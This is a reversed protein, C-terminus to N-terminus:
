QFFDKKFACQVFANRNEEKNKIQVLMNKQPIIYNLSKPTLNLKSETGKWFTEDIGMIMKTAVSTMFDESFHTPSQSSAILGLGFKRAEKAIVNIINEPEDSFYMHAEDIVVLEVLEDKLGIELRREFIQELLMNVFMKKEELRLAKIQYRWVSCNEDFPPLLDKFIGANNLNELREVVSKLTDKSDYKILSSLENGTQINNIYNSYEEICQEKLQKLEEELKQIEARDHEKNMKKIKAYMRNASRNLKELLSMAKNNTGLMLSQLKFNSFNVADQLTPYKKPFRRKIGDDLVWSKPDNSYFGNAQYLDLLINRLVAEQKSGLVRGSRNILTIFSQIKNRVGGFDLNPNIILPNFGYNTAGSFKVCSAGEIDIDDHFDFVHIRINKEQQKIQNIINRLTYTKGSGSAGMILIHRTLVKDSDWIIPTEKGGRLDFQHYGLFVKM